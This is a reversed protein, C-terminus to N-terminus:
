NCPVQHVRSTVSLSCSIPERATSDTRVDFYGTTRLPGGNSGAQGDISLRRELLRQHQGAVVALVPVLVSLTFGVTNAM